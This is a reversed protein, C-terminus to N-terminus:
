GASIWLDAGLLHAEPFFQVFEADLSSFERLAQQTERVIYAGWDAAGALRNVGGYEPLIDFRKLNLFLHKM